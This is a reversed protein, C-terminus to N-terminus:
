SLAPPARAQEPSGARSVVPDLVLEHWIVSTVPRDFTLNAFIDSLVYQGAVGANPSVPFNLTNNDQRVLQAKLSVSVLLFVAISLLSKGAKM